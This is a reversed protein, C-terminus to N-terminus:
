TPNADGRPVIAGSATLNVLLLLANCLGTIEAAIETATQSTNITLNNTGTLVSCFRPRVPLADLETVRAATQAATEGTFGRNYNLTATSSGIEWVLPCWLAGMSFAMAWTMFGVSQFAGVTGGRIYIAQSTISDGLAAVLQPGALPAYAPIYTGDGRALASSTANWEAGRVASGKDTKPSGALVNDTDTAFRAGVMQAGFTDSVTYTSGADLLTGSAGRRTSPMTIRMTM